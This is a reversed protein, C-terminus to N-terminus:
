AVTIPRSLRSFHRTVSEPKIGEVDFHRFTINVRERPRVVFIYVCRTNRPYLGPFNPSTITGNLGDSSSYTFGCGVRMCLWTVEDDDACAYVIM